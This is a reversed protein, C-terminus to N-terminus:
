SGVSTYRKIGQKFAILAPILFIFVVLPSFVYLKNTTKDLLYLLPYYNVFAYPIIFTFIFIFGKNFVGIPYQAMEKGGDTFVNRIELGQITIFCYSAMLLFIAFFIVVASILMLILTILKYINFTLNLNVLAVVLIIIAQVVRAFKILDLESCIVQFLINQPRILMQDFKGTIILQEFRDVGRAFVENIAYGFQIVAFCLLIEYLTFGKINSFKTFLSAIVFYYSFLILFQAMFGLIFSQKYELIAKIHMKLSAIYVKM